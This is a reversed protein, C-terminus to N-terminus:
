CSILQGGCNPCREVDCGEVHFQDLSVSCDHCKCKYESRHWDPFESGYPVRRCLKGDIVVLWNEKKMTM